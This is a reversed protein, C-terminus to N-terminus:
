SGMDKVVVIIIDIKEANSLGKKPNEQFLQCFALIANDIPLSYFLTTGSAL